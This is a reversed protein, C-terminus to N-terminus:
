QDYQQGADTLWEGDAEYDFTPTAEKLPPLYLFEIWKDLAARNGKLSFLTTFWYWAKAVQGQLEAKNLTLVVCSQRGVVLKESILVLGPPREALRPLWPALLRVPLARAPSCLDQVKSVAEALNVHLVVFHVGGVDHAGPHTSDVLVALPM